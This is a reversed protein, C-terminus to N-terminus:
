CNCQSGQIFLSPSLMRLEQSTKSWNWWRGHNWQSKWWKFAVPADATISMMRWITNVFISKEWSESTWDIFYFFPFHECNWQSNAWCHEWRSSLICFGGFLLSFTIDEADDFPVCIIIWTIEISIRSKRYYLQGPQTEKDVVDKHSSTGQPESLILSTSGKLVKWRNLYNNEGWPGPERQGVDRWSAWLLPRLISGRWQHVAEPKRKAACSAIQSENPEVSSSIRRKPLPRSGM